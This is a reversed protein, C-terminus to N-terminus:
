DFYNRAVTAAIHPRIYGAPALAAKFEPDEDFTIWEVIQPEVPSIRTDFLNIKFRDSYLEIQIKTFGQRAQFQDLWQHLHCICQRPPHNCVPCPEGYDMSNETLFIGLNTM